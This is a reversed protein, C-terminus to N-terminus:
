CSIIIVVKASQAHRWGTCILLPNLILDVLLDLADRRYIVKMSHGSRTLPEDHQVYVLLSPPHLSSMQCPMALCAGKSSLLCLLSESDIHRPRALHAALFLVSFTPLKRHLRSLKSNQLLNTFMDRGLSSGAM